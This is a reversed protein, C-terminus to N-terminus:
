EFTLPRSAEALPVMSKYADWLSSATTSRPSLKPIIEEVLKLYCWRYCVQSDANMVELINTVLSNGIQCIFDTNRLARLFQLLLAFPSSFHIFFLPKFILKCLDSPNDLHINKPNHQIFPLMIEFITLSFKRIESEKSAKLEETKTNLLRIMPQLSFPWDIITAAQKLLFYSRYYYSESYYYSFYENQMGYFVSNVLNTIDQQWQKETRSAIKAPYLSLYYELVLISTPYFLPKLHFSLLSGMMSPKIEILHFLQSLPARNIKDVMMKHVYRKNSDELLEYGLGQVGFEKRVTCM